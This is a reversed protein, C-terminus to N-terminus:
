GEQGPEREEPFTYGKLTRYKGDPVWRLEVKYAERGLLGEGLDVDFTGHWNGGVRVGYKTWEKGTKANKGNQVSVEDIVGVTTQLEASGATAARSNTSNDARKKGGGGGVAEMEEAPTAQFGGMVAVWGFTNKAARSCARTQAMAALSHTPRNSWLDEDRMVYAEGHGIVRGEVNVVDASAKFGQVGFVEVPVADRATITCNYFGSVTQWHENRLYKQGGVELVTGTDAIIENLVKAKAAADNAIREPTLANEQHNIIAVANAM